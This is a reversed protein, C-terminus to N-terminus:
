DHRHEDVFGVGPWEPTQTYHQTIGSLTLGAITTGATTKHLTATGHFTTAAHSGVAHASQSVGLAHAVAQAGNEAPRSRRPRRLWREATSSRLSRAAERPPRISAPHTPTPWAVNDAVASANALVKISGTNTISAMVVSATFTGTRTATWAVGDDYRLYGSRGPLYCHRGDLDALVGATGASVGQNIGVASASALADAGRHAANGVTVNATAAVTLAATNSVSAM